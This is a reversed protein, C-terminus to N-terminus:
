PLKEVAKNCGSEGNTDIYEKIYRFKQEWIYTAYFTVATRCAPAGDTETVNAVMSFFLNDVLSVRRSKPLVELKSVTEPRTIFNQYQYDPDRFDDAGVWGPRRFNPTNTIKESHVDCLEYYDQIKKAVSEVNESFCYSSSKKGKSIMETSSVAYLACGPMLSVALCLVPLRNTIM